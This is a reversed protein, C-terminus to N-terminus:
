KREVLELKYLKGAKSKLTKSERYLSRYISETQLGVYEAIEKAKDAVLVPTELYDATALVYFYKGFPRNSMIEVAQHLLCM